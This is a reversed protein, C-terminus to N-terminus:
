IRLIDITHASPPHETGAPSFGFWSGSDQVEPRFGIVNELVAVEILRTQPKVRAALSFDGSPKTPQCCSHEMQTDGCNSSMQLCCEHEAATMTAGPILCLMSPAFLVSLITMGIIFQARHMTAKRETGLARYWLLFGNEATAKKLALSENQIRDRYEPFHRYKRFQREPYLWVPVKTSNRFRGTESLAVSSSSIQAKRSLDV